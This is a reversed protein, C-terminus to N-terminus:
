RKVFKNYDCDERTPEPRLGEYKALMEADDYTGQHGIKTEMLLCMQQM